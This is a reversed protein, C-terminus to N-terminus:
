KPAPAPSALPKGKEVYYIGALKVPGSGVNKASHVTGAPIVFGEGAKYVKSPKGAEYLEVEGEMVYSLEDGPHTHWGVVGGPVIEIRTVKGEHGPTSVDGTAVITRTIGPAQAFVLSAFVLASGAIFMKKATSVTM